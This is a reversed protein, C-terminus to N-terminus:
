LRCLAKLLMHLTALTLAVRNGIELVTRYIVLVLKSNMQDTPTPVLVM